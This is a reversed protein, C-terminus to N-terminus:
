ATIKEAKYGGQMRDRIFISGFIITLIICLIPVFRLAIRGGHLDAPNLLERASKNINSDEPAVLLISRMLQATKIRPLAKATNYYNEIEKADNLINEIIKKESEPRNAIYTPFFENAERVVAITKEADFKEHGYYDAVRGMLPITLLGVALNGAAGLLALAFEGGKPVRESTVGLM